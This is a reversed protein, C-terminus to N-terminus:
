TRDDPVKLPAPEREAWWERPVPDAHYEQKKLGYYFYPSFGDRALSDMLGIFERYAYKGVVMRFLIRAWWPRESLARIFDVAWAYVRGWHVDGSM